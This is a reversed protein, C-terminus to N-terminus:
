GGGAVVVVIKVGRGIGEVVRRDPRNPDRQDPSRCGEICPLASVSIRKVASGIPYFRNGGDDVWAIEAHPVISTFVIRFAMVLDLGTRSEVSCPAARTVVSKSSSSIVAMDSVITRETLESMSM